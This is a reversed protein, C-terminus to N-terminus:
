KGRYIQCTEKGKLGVVEFYALPSGHIGEVLPKLIMGPEDSNNEEQENAEIEKGGVAHKTYGKYQNEGVNDHGHHKQQFRNQNVLTPGLHHEKPPIPHFDRVAAIYM